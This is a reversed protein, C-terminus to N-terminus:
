ARKIASIHEEVTPYMDPVMEQLIPMYGGRIIIRENTIGLKKLFRILNSGLNEYVLADSLKVIQTEIM